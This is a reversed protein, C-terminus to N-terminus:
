KIRLMDSINYLKRMYLSPSSLVSKEVDGKRKPLVNIKFDVANVKKFKEVIENVSYGYGHGLNEINMSPQTIAQIMSYCIEEVHVYDRLATGDHTNYDNGYLHFEGTEVAKVLNYFLGDPNTAPFHTSGIVNYFRFITFPINNKGCYDKVCDEAARKSIGYVSNCLDAMGTSVFIFNKTSVRHLLEVTGQINTSYYELANLEGGGVQVLAALHIVCDFNHETITSVRVDCKLFNHLQIKPDVIDQGYVQHGQDVLIKVLHSGIYGSCGTVLIKM